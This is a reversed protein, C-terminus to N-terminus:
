LLHKTPVVFPFSARRLFEGVASANAETLQFGAYTARARDVFLQVSAYDRLHELAESRRPTTLKPTPKRRSKSATGHPPTSERAHPRLGALEPLLEDIDMAEVDLKPLRYGVRGTQSREFILAENQTPHSTVKKITM